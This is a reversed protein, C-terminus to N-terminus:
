GGLQELLFILQDQVVGGFVTLSTLIAGAYLAGFTVAIFGEGVLAVLQLPLPRRPMGDRSRLSIYQFYLLTTITGVILITADLANSDNVSEGAETIVAFLTVSVVGVLAVGVGAGILLASGINGISTLLGNSKLFLLLGLILPIIGVIIAGAEDTDAEVVTRNVWPIIVGEIITIAVTAAATGILIHVAIRYLFNDALVYSFIMLTLVLAAWGAILDVNELTM